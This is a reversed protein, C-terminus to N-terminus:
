KIPRTGKEYEHGSKLVHSLNLSSKANQPGRRRGSHLVKIRFRGLDSDPAGPCVLAGLSVLDVVQALTNKQEAM